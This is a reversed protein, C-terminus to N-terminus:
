IDYPDRTSNYQEIRQLRALKQYDPTEGKYMVAFYTLTDIFHNRGPGWISKQTSEGDRKVEDWKLHEIEYMAWNEEEGEDNVWMLSNDIYIKPKGNGQIKGHEELKKARHEDWTEKSDGTTKSVPLLDISLDRLEQIDSPAASDAWSARVKRGVEKRKIIEALQPNTLGKQYIGDFIYWNDDYDVAIYAVCAPNSFGFDITRYIDWEPKVHIDQMHVGRDFWSCVLGTMRTFKGDRRVQLAQETLNNGMRAKQEESLWPNDNWGGTVVKIDKNNVAKYIRDYVWTMGLVPTMTLIIHLPRGAEQRVTCEEWIDRPPEEDFWILAKGAGQWKARGQDYSKFTIKGITGDDAKYKLDSWIDKRIFSQDVIRSPDLMKKLKPQLVDKHTDYSETGIWIENPLDDFTIFPHKKHAFRTAEHGGWQTKGVRNGALFARIFADSQTLEQQKLHEKFQDIPSGKARRV